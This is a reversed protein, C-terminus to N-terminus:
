LYSNADEILRVFCPIVTVALIDCYDSARVSPLEPMIIRTGMHFEPPDRYDNYRTDHARVCKVRAGVIVADFKEGTHLGTEKDVKQCVLKRRENYQPKIYDTQNMPTRATVRQLGHEHANRAFHLYSLLLDKKRDHKKRGYWGGSKGGNKTGQELKSYIGNVALIFDEWADEQEEYSKATALIETAKQARRLRTNCHKIASQIM